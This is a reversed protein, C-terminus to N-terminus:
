FTRDPRQPNQKLVGQNFIIADAPIPFVYAPDNPELALSAKVFPSGGFFVDTYQHIIKKSFPYVSNVAYRKLDFWRHGEFSLERRREDRVFAALAAGSLDVPQFFAAPFRTRRLTNIVQNAEPDKKLMALAEAKNLYAEAVRMTFVDSATETPIINNMSSSYVKTYRYKGSSLEFFASKRLDNGTYLAMLEATPQMAKPPFVEPMIGMIMNGDQTFIVEPAEKTLFSTRPIYAALQSLAPKRALVKDAAAISKEWQQMYLYIRSQLLNVANIDARYTNRQGAGELCQEATELDAVMQQYVSDVTSRTFFRDEVYESIKLPVGMDTAATSPKYAAAYINVMYFYYYARMFLAEGRIRKLQAPDDKSSAAQYAIINAANIRRYVPAWTNDTLQMFTNATFPNAQWTYFGFVDSRADIFSVSSVYDAIDDDMTNLFKFPLGKNIVYVEGRLVEDLKQWTKAYALTQSQEELFKKCGTFLFLALIMFTYSRISKM